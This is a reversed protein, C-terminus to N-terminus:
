HKANIMIATSGTKRITAHNNACMTLIYTYKCDNFLEDLLLVNQFDWM